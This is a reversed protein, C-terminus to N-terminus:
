DNQVACGVPDSYNPLGTEKSLTYVCLRRYGRASTIVYNQDAEATFKITLTSKDTNLMQLNSADVSLLVENAGPPILAGSSMSSFNQGNVKHISVGFAKLYASGSSSNTVFNQPGFCGAFVTLLLLFTAHKLHTTASSM